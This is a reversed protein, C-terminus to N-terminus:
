RELMEVDPDPVLLQITASFQQKHSDWLQCGSMEKPFHLAWIRADPGREVPEFFGSPPRCSASSIVVSEM